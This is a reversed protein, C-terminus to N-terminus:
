LNTSRQIQTFKRIFSGINKHARLQRNKQRLVNMASANAVALRRSLAHVMEYAFAPERRLLEDFDGSTMELLRVTTLTRLSATRHHDPSLLSMEGVYDPGVRTSIVWEDPTGMSQVVEVKGTLILYFHDGVEGERVLVSKPPVEFPRLKDVLRSLEADPLLLFLPFQGLEHTSLKPSPEYNM